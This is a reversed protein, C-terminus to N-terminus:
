ITKSTQLCFKIALSPVLIMSNQMAFNEFDYNEYRLFSDSLVQQVRLILVQYSGAKISFKRSALQCLPLLM